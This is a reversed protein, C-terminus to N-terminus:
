SAQWSQHKTCREWKIIINIYKYTDSITFWESTCQILRELSATTMCFQCEATCNHQKEAATSCSSCCVGLHGSLDDRGVQLQVRKGCSPFWTYSSGVAHEFLHEKPISLLPALPVKLFSLDPILCIETSLIFTLAFSHINM